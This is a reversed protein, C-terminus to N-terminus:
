IGHQIKTSESGDKTAEQKDKEIYQGKSNEIDVKITCCWEETDLIQEQDLVFGQPIYNETLEEPLATRPTGEVMYTLRLEQPLFRLVATYITHRLEASAAYLGITMTILVLLVAVTAKRRRKKHEQKQLTEYIREDWRTTQPYLSKLEEPSPMTELEREMQAYLAMQLAADFSIKANNKEM